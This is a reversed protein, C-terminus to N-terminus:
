SMWVVGAPHPKVFLTKDTTARCPLCFRNFQVAHSPMPQTHTFSFIMEDVSRTQGSRAHFRLSGPTPRFICSRVLAAGSRNTKMSEDEFSIEVNGRLVYFSEDWDHSHPPPWSGEEGEQLTIEYGHTAANSALVTIKTGLM